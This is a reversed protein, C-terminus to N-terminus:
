TRQFINLQLKQRGIRCGQYLWHDHSDYFIQLLTPLSCGQILQLFDVDVDDAAFSTLEINSTKCATSNIASLQRLNLVFVM